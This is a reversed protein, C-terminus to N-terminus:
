SFTLVQLFIVVKRGEKVIRKADVSVRTFLGSGHTFHETFVGSLPFPKIIENSLVRKLFPLDRFTRLQQSDACSYSSKRVILTFRRSM